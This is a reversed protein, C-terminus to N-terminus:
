PAAVQCVSLVLQGILGVIVIVAVVRLVRGRLEDGPQM